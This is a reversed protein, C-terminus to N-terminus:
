IKLELQHLDFASAKEQEFNNVQDEVRELWDNLAQEMKKMNQNAGGSLLSSTSEVVKQREKSLSLQHISSNQKYFNDSFRRTQQDIKENLVKYVREEMDKM